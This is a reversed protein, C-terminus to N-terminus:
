GSMDDHHIAAPARPQPRHHRRCSIIASILELLCCYYLATTHVCVSSSGRECISCRAVKGSQKLLRCNAASTAELTSRSVGNAAWTEIGVRNDLSILGWRHAPMFGRDPTNSTRAMMATSNVLAWDSWGDPVPCPNRNLMCSPSPGRFAKKDAPNSGLNVRMDGVTEWGRRWVPTRSAAAALSMVGAALWCRSLLVACCCRSVAAAHLLLMCCCDTNTHLMCRARPNNIFGGLSPFPAPLSLPAGSFLAVVPPLMM